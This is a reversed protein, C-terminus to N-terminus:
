AADKLQSTKLIEITAGDELIAFEVKKGIRDRLWRLNRGLMERQEAHLRCPYRLVIVDGDEPTLKHIAPEIDASMIGGLLRALWAFCRAM